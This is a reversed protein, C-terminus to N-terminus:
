DLARRLVLADEPPEGKYYAKRRGVEAFGLGEYVARAAGNGVAVELFMSTAGEQSAKALAAQVLLRGLGQARMYSAVALTLIEAEGAAVRAVIFGAVGGEEAVLAFTGPSTMVEGLSNDDWPDAFGEVHIAALRPLDELAAARIM